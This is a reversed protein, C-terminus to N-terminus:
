DNNTDGGVSDDKLSTFYVPNDAMGQIKLAGQIDILKNPQVKVKVGPKIVLTVDIGYTLYGSPIYVIDVSAWTRTIPQITTVQGRRVEMGNRTNQMLQNGNTVPESNVDMSLAYSSAYSISNNHLAPAAAELYIMEGYRIDAYEVITEADVSDGTFIVRKWDGPAPTSNRGDQNTDGGVSDDQFSTFHVRNEPAGHVKLAGEVVISTNPKFKVITGEQVTLTANTGVSISSNVLYLCDSNWTTNEAIAGGVNCLPLSPQATLRTSSIIIGFVLALLLAFALIAKRFELLHYM